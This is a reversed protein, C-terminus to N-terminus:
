LLKWYKLLVSLPLFSRNIHSLYIMSITKNKALLHPQDCFCTNISHRRSVPCDAELVLSLFNASISSFFTKWFVTQLAETERCGYCQLELCLFVCSQCDKTASMVHCLDSASGSDRAGSSGLLHRWNRKWMQFFLRNDRFPCHTQCNNRGTGEPICTMSVLIISNSSCLLCIEDGAHHDPCFVSNKHKTLIELVRECFLKLRHSTFVLEENGRNKLFFGLYTIRRM